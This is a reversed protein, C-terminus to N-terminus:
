LVEIVINNVKGDNDADSQAYGFTETQSSYVNNYIQMNNPSLAFGCIIKNGSYYPYHSVADCRFGLYCGTTLTASLNGLTGINQMEGADLDYFFVDMPCKDRLDYRNLLLFGKPNPLYCIHYTATRDSPFTYLTEINQVDLLGNQLRTARFLCHSQAMRSDTAWYIYERTWIFNLQRCYKEINTIGSGDNTELFVTWTDGEDDSFLFKAGTEDDGTSAYMLGTFPDRDVNHTHKMGEVNSGSLTFTKKISWSDKSTYPTEVKWISTTVLAPRTYEGFCFFGDDGAYFGDNQLWGTPKASSGFDVVVPNELDDHPYVTPNYRAGLYEGRAVCIIDGEQTIGIAYKMPDASGNYTATKDWTFLYELRDPVGSSYYFKYPEANTRYLWGITVPIKNAAYRTKTACMTLFRPDPSEITAPDPSPIASFKAKKLTREDGYRIISISSRITDVWGTLSRGDTYKVKLRAYKGKVTTEGALWESATGYIGVFNSNEDYLCVKYVFNPNECNIICREGIEFMDSGLQTTSAVMLGTQYDIEVLFLSYDVNEAGESGTVIPNGNVDYLM